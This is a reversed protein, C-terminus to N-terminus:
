AGELWRAPDEPLAADDPGDAPSVGLVADLSEVASDAWGHAMLFARRRLAWGPEALLWQVYAAAVGRDMFPELWQLVTGPEAGEWSLWADAWVLAQRRAQWWRFGEGLPGLRAAVREIAWDVLAGVAGPDRVIWDLDPHGRERWAAVLGASFAAEASGLAADAYTGGRLCQFAAAVADRTVPAPKPCQALWRARWEAAHEVARPLVWPVPGPPRRDTIHARYASLAPLLVSGCGLHEAVRAIRVTLADVATATWADIAVIQGAEELYPGTRDVVAAQVAHADSDPLAAAAELVGWLTWLPADARRYLGARLRRVAHRAYRGWRRAEASSSAQCAEAVNLWSNTERRFAPLTWEPLVVAPRGARAPTVLWAAPYREQTLRRLLVAPDGRVRGFGQGKPM